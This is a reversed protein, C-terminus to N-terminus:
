AGVVLGGVTIAFTLAFWGAVIATIATSVGLAHSSIIREILKM